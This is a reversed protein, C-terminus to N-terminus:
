VVAACGDGGRVRDKLLCVLAKTAGDRLNRNTSAFCWALTISALRVSENSLHSKDEDSWAWNILTKIPSEYDWQRKLYPGWWSDRDAMTYTSLKRHLYDANFSHNPIAVISLCTDWFHRQLEWHNIGELFAFM